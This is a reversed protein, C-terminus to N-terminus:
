ERYLYIVKTTVCCLRGTSPGFCLKPTQQSQVGVLTIQFLVIFIFNLHQCDARIQPKINNPSCHKFQVM